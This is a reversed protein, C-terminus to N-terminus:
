FFLVALFFFLLFLVFPIIWFLLFLLLLSSSFCSFYPSLLFSSLASTFLLPPPPIPHSPLFSSNFSSRSSPFSPSSSYWTSSYFFPLLASLPILFFLRLSYLLLLFLLFLLPFYFSESTSITGVIIAGDIKLPPPAARFGIPPPRTIIGLTRRLSPIRRRPARVLASLARAARWLLKIIKPTIALGPRRGSRSHLCRKYYRGRYNFAHGYTSRSRRPGQPESGGGDACNLLLFPNPSSELTGVTTSKM